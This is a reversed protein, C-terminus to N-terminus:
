KLTSIDYPRPFVIIYGGRTVDIRCQTLDNWGYNNHTYETPVNIRDFYDAVTVLGYDTLQTRLDELVNVADQRNEIIYDNVNLSLREEPYGRNRDGYGRRNNNYYSSYNTVERVVNRGVQRAIGGRSEGYLMNDVINKITDSIINKVTPIVINRRADKVADKFRAEGIFSRIIKKGFGVKVPTASVIAEVKPRDLIEEIVEDSVKIDKTKIKNYEKM